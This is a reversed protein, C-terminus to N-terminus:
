RARRSLAVLTENLSAPALSIEATVGAQELDARVSGPEDGLVRIVRGDLVVVRRERDVAALAAPWDAAAVEVVRRRGVIDPVRGEAVVRGGAMIVVRDAQEAEDM